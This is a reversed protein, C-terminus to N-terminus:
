LEDDGRYEKEVKEMLLSPLLQQQMDLYPQLPLMNFPSNFITCLIVNDKEVLDPRCEEYCATVWEFERAADGTIAHTIWPHYAYAYLIEKARPKVSSRHEDPLRFCLRELWSFGLLAVLLCQGIDVSNGTIGYVTLYRVHPMVNVRVVDMVTQFTYLCLITVQNLNHSHLFSSMPITDDVAYSHVHQLSAGHPVHGFRHASVSVLSPFLVSSSLRVGACTLTRVTPLSIEATTYLKVPIKGQLKLNKVRLVNVCHLLNDINAVKEQLKALGRFSVSLTDVVINRTGIINLHISPLVHHAYLTKITICLHIPFLLQLDIFNAYVCTVQRLNPYATTDALGSIGDLQVGRLTEITPCRSLLDADLPLLRSPTSLSHNGDAVRFHILRPFRLNSPLSPTKDGSHLFLTHLDLIITRMNDKAHFLLDSNCALNVLRPLRIIADFVNSEKVATQFELREIGSFTTICSALYLSDAFAITSSLRESRRTKRFGYYPNYVLPKESDDTACIAVFFNPVHGRALDNMRRNVALFQGCLQTGLLHFIPKWLDDIIDSATLRPPTTAIVHSTM